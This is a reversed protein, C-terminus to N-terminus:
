IVASSSSNDNLDNKVREICAFLDDCDNTYHPLIQLSNEAIKMLMYNLQTLLDIKLRMEENEKKSKTYEALLTQNKIEIEIRANKYNKAMESIRIMEKKLNNEERDYNEIRRLLEKEKETLTPTNLALVALEKTKLEVEGVLKDILRSHKEGIIGTGTSAKQLTVNKLHIKSM